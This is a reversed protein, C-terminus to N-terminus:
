KIRNLYLQPNKLEKTNPPDMVLKEFTTKGFRNFLYQTFEKGTSKKVSYASIDTGVFTTLYNQFNTDDKLIQQVVFEAMGEMTTFIAHQTQIPKLWRQYIEQLSPVLDSIKPDIEVKTYTMVDPGMVNTIFNDPNLMFFLNAKNAIKFEDPVLQLQLYETLQTVIKDDLALITKALEENIENVQIVAQTNLRQLNTQVSHVIEELITMKLAGLYGSKVSEEKVEYPSGQKYLIIKPYDGLIFMNLYIKSDLYDGYTTSLKSIYSKVYTSYVLFKATDEKIIESIKKLDNKTVADFLKDVFTRGTDTFVKKGKLKKFEDLGLYEISLDNSVELGTYSTVKQKLIPFINQSIKEVNDFEVTFNRDEKIKKALESIVKEEDIEVSLQAMLAEAFEYLESM